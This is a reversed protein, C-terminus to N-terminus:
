TLLCNKICDGQVWGYKFPVNNIIWEPGIDPLQGDLGFYDHFPQLTAVDEEKSRTVYWVEGQRWLELDEEWDATIPVDMQATATHEDIERMDSSTWSIGHKRPNPFAVYLIIRQKEENVFFFACAPTEIGLNWLEQYMKLSVKMLDDSSRMFLVESRISEAAKEWAREQRLHALEIQLQEYTKEKDEMNKM